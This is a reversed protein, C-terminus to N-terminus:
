NNSPAIAGIKALVFTKHKFVISTFLAIQVKLKLWCLLMVKNQGKPRCCYEWLIMSGSLHQFMTEGIYSIYDILNFSFPLVYYVGSGMQKGLTKM